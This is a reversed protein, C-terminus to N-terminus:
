VQQNKNLRLIYFDYITLAFVFSLCVWFGWLKQSDWSYSRSIALFILGLIDHLIVIRIAEKYFYKIALSLILFLFSAFAGFFVAFPITDVIAALGTYTDPQPILLPSLWPLKNSILQSTTKSEKETSPVTDQPTAAAQETTSDIQSLNDQTTTDEIAISAKNLTSTDTNVSELAMASDQKAKEEASQGCGDYFFPLLFCCLTALHLRRSYKYHTSNSNEM